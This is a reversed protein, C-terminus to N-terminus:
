REMELILPLWYGKRFEVIIASLFMLAKLGAAFSMQQHSPANGRIHQQNSQVIRRSGTLWPSYYDLPSRWQDVRCLVVHTADFIWGKERDTLSQTERLRKSPLDGESIQQDTQEWRVTGFVQWKDDKFKALVVAGLWLKSGEGGSNARDNLDISHLWCIEIVMDTVDSRVCDAEAVAVVVGEVFLFLDDGSISMSLEASYMLIM